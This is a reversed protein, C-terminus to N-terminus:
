RSVNISQTMTAPFCSLARGSNEKYIFDVGQHRGPILININMCQTDINKVQRKM